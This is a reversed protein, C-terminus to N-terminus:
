AAETNTLLHYPVHWTGLPGMDVVAQRARTQTVRGMVGFQPGGRIKGHYRVFQGSIVNGANLPPRVAPPRPMGPMPIQADGPALTATVMAQGDGHFVNTRYSCNLVSRNHTDVAPLAAESCDIAPCHVLVPGLPYQGSIRSVREEPPCCTESINRLWPGAGSWIEMWRISVGSHPSRRPQMAMWRAGSM